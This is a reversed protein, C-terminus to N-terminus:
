PLYTFEAFESTGILQANEDHATIRWRYQQGSQLQQRARESLHLQEQEARALMRLVFEVGDVAEEPSARFIQLQYVAVGDIKKWKLATQPSLTMARASTIEIEAATRTSAGEIRYDTEAMLEPEPCQGDLQLQDSMIVLPEVCFRLRYHGPETTPLEPSVLFERQGLKLQKRVNALTTYAPKGTADGSAIQWTGQLLGTGSYRLDLRARLTSAPAFRTKNRANEFRLNLKHIFLGAAPTRPKSSDSGNLTIVLNASAVATDSAAASFARQYAIASIGKGHWTQLQEPTFALVEDFAMPGAGESRHFPTNITHLVADTVPDNLQGQASYAGGRHAPSTSVVWRLNFSKGQVTDASGQKPSVTVGTVAASAAVPFTLAALLMLLIPAIAPRSSM